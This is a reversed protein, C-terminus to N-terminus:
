FNIYWIKNEEAETLSIFLGDRPEFFSINEDPSIFANVAHGSRKSNQYFITGVAVSDANTENRKNRLRRDTFTYPNHSAHIFRLYTKFSTSMDDCDWNTKWFSNKIKRKFGFISIWEAYAKFAYKEVWEPDLIAYNRDTLVIEAKPYRTSLLHELEKRPLIKISEEASTPEEPM